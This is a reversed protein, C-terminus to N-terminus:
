GRASSVKRSMSTGGLVAERLLQAPATGAWVEGQVLSASPPTNAGASARATENVQQFIPHLTLHPVQFLNKKKGGTATPCTTNAICNNHLLSVLLFM